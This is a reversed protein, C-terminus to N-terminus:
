FNLDAEKSRGNLKGLTWSVGFFVTRYMPPKVEFRQSGDPSYRYGFVNKRGLINDM